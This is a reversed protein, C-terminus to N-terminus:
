VNDVPQRGAVFHGPRRFVPIASDLLRRAFTQRTKKIGGNRDEPAAKQRRCGPTEDTGTGDSSGEHGKTGKTTFARHNQSASKATRPVWPRAAHPAKQWLGPRGRRNVPNGKLIRAARRKRLVPAHENVRTAEGAGDASGRDVDM